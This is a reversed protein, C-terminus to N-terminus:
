QIAVIGHFGGSLGGTEAEGDGPFQCFFHISLDGDAEKVPYKGNGNKKWLNM